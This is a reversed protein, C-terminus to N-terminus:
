QFLESPAPYTFNRFTGPVQNESKLASKPVLMMCLKLTPVM